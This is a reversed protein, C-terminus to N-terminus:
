KAESYSMRVCCGESAADDCACLAQFLSATICSDGEAHQQLNDLRLLMFQEHLTM